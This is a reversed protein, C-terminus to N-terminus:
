RRPRMMKLRGSGHSLAVSLADWTMARWLPSFYSHVCAGESRSPVLGDERREEPVRQQMRSRSRESVVGMTSFPRRGVYLVDSPRVNRLGRYFSM